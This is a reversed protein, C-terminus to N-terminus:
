WSAFISLFVVNNNGFNDYNWDGEGNICISAGFNEVYEGLQYLQANALTFLSFLIQALIFKNLQMDRYINNLNLLFVLVIHSGRIECVWEM